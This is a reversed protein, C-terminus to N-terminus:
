IQGTKGFEGFNGPKVMQALRRDLRLPRQIQRWAVIKKFRDTFLINQQVVRVFRKQRHKVKDPSRSFVRLHQRDFLGQVTDAAVGRQDAGQRLRRFVAFLNRNHDFDHGPEVLLVIDLPGAAQLFGTAMDNVPQDSQLGVGLHAQHDPAFIAADATIHVHACSIVIIRRGADVSVDAQKGGIVLEAGIGGPKEVDQGTIGIRRYPIFDSHRRESQPIFDKLM